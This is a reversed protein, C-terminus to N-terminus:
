QLICFKAFNEEPNQLNWQGTSTAAEELFHSSLPLPHLPLLLLLHLLPVEAPTLGAWQARLQCEGDVGLNDPLHVPAFFQFGTNLIFLM